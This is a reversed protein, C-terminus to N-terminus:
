GPVLGPEATPTSFYFDRFQGCGSCKMRVGVFRQGDYVFREQLPPAEPHYPSNGCVCKFKALYADIEGPTKVSFASEPSAGPLPKVDRPRKIVRKGREHRKYGLVLLVAVLPILLFTIAKGVSYGSVDNVIIGAHGRPVVFWVANRMREITDLHKNTAAASIHDDLSRLSYDLTIKKGVYNQNYTLELAEDAIVGSDTQLDIEAPLEIEITQRLSNPHEIALPLLRKAVDPKDLNSYVQDALFYQQSENWMHEIVYRETVTIANANPDDVVTHGGDLRISPNRNAYYNLNDKALEELSQSSLRYRMGDADSGKYVSTVVFSVPAQYDKVTYLEQVTTGGANPSPPPIQELGVSGERLILGRAYPPDYYQDLSGRQYSITPDLWYTKGGLKANVIVHNFAFPSPQKSDLSKGSRSNVLAPAAEIGLANLITALLMSKDKCDGFRRAFVKAPPNPQHSYRGLEIGLYRVEDQVFRVAALARGEDTSLESKWKAVKVALENSPPPIKYLPLAWTIVDSWQAFESLDVAPFPEAWGPTSDERQVAPVDNREWLYETEEGANQIVPKIETNINRLNLTRGAPWLVRVRLTQAPRSDALYIRDAFRGGLVPNDGSVTYAYDVVDGVRLDNMFVISAFTGNYLQQNLEEEQQITKIEAPKLAQIIEGGRQIRIFHIALQQYSPEFYFKLQSVDDLGATNEIRLAYHYYREVSAKSIRIENDDLVLTTSGTAANAASRREIEVDSTRVWAAPPKVVFAPKAHTTNAFSASLIVGTVLM